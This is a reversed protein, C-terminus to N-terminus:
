VAAATEGTLYDVRDRNLRAAAKLAGDGDVAEPHADWYWRHGDDSMVRVVGFERAREEDGKVADLIEFLAHGLTRGSASWRLTMQSTGACLIASEAGPVRLGQAEVYAEDMGQVVLANGRRILEDLVEVTEEDIKM